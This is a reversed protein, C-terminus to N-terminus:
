RWFALLDFRMQNGLPDVSSIMIRPLPAERFIASQQARRVVMNDANAPWRSVKVPLAHASHEIEGAIEYIRSLGGHGCKFASRGL